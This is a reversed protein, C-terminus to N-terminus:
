DDQLTEHKRGKRGLDLQMGASYAHIGREKCVIMGHFNKVINESHLDM